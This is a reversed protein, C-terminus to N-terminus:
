SKAEDTSRFRPLYTDILKAKKRRLIKNIESTASLAARVHLPLQVQLGELQM